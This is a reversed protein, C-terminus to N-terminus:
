RDLLSEQGTAGPWHAYVSFRGYPYNRGEPPEHSETLDTGDALHFTASYYCETSKWPTEACFFGSPHARDPTVTIRANRLWRRTNGPLPFPFHFPKEADAKEVDDWTLQLPHTADLKGVSPPTKEIARARLIEEIALGPRFLLARTQATADNVFTYSALLLFSCLFATVALPLLSRVVSLTREQLQARFLRYSQIVALLLTPVLITTTVMRGAQISGAMNESAADILRFLVNSGLRSVATSFRFSALLGFRAVFVDVLERGAREGYVNALGVAILAPFVWLVARVTGKLACACWFSAFTLILLVFLWGMGFHVDVFIRSAGFLLRGAILLPLLGAGVFGAFLAMCLKVLWQRRASVPLTMHWSHTGSTREEGLSLSGALIAIMLTSGVGMIVVATEFNRSFGREFLLGFLTLSAWGLAALLSILWVPRLWRLEKRILNLLAGTPRCRLWGVWAGSMVDPGAMLLDDSAMGGTAQFRALTRGGLWLMAGAYCLFVFTVTSVVIPNGPSLYGRARLWDALNAWPVTFSIFSQVGVNLVVGGVASRTFLTWFTASATIAVIWAGGFAWVKWDPRFSTARLALSFVLVASLVAVVTVSLKEGWIVMRGVPQSLLLSFTRHQFEDGLPLTALLPIGLFFGIPSIWGISQPSHALPLVGALIVACWPWFLPHAEKLIRPTKANM